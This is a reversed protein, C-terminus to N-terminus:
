KLHLAIFFMELFFYVSILIIIMVNYKKIKNSRNTVLESSIENKDLLKMSYLIFIVISLFIVIIKLVQIGLPNFDWSYNRLPLIEDFKLIFDDFTHIWVVSWINNTRYYIAGVIMSWCISQLIQMVTNFLTQGFFLNIFHLLGFLISSMFISLVVSKYSKGYKNVIENQILKRCLFEETLGITFCYCMLGIVEYYNCGKDIFIIEYLLFLLEPLACLFIPWGKLLSKWFKDKKKVNSYHKKKSFIIILMVIAFISLEKVIDRSYGGFLKIDPIYKKIINMIFSSNFTFVILLIIVFLILMKSIFCFNSKNKDLSTNSNKEASIKIRKVM